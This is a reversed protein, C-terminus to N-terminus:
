GAAAPTFDSGLLVTVNSDINAFATSQKVATIGLANAAGRAVSEYQPASYYVTSETLTNENSNSSSGITFGAKTLQEAASEDLSSTSTGNLVTIPVSADITASPTASIAGAKATDDAATFLGNDIVVVTGIGVGSLVVVALLMWGVYKLRRYKRPAARHVGVRAPHEPLQDFQDTPFKEAM